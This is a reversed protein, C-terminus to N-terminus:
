LSFEKKLKEFREVKDKLQKTRQLVKQSKEMDDWFGPAASEEELKAIESVTGAIDFHM